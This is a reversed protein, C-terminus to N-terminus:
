LALAQVLQAITPLLKTSVSVRGVEGCDHMIRHVLTGDELDHFAALDLHLVHEFTKKRLRRSIAEGVRSRAFIEWYSLLSRIGTLLLLFLLCQLVEFYHMTVTAADFVWKLILPQFLDAAVVLGTIGLSGLIPWLSPKLEPFLYRFIIRLDHQAKTRM